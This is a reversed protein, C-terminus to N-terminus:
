NGEKEEEEYGSLLDGISGRESVDSM